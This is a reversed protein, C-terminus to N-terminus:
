LHRYRGVRFANSAYSTGRVEERCVMVTFLLNPILVVLENVTDPRRSLFSFGLREAGGTERRCITSQAAM